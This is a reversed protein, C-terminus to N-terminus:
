RRTGGPQLRGGGLARQAEYPPSEPEQVPPPTVASYTLMFSSGSDALISPSSEGEGTTEYGAYERGGPALTIETTDWRWSSIASPVANKTEAEAEAFTESGFDALPLAQCLTGNGNCESPAEVIWDASTVDLTSDTVTKSFSKHRTRDTLDLTVKHGVVTVMGHMVDGPHVTMRIGRSPAPVLEYWATSVVSGSATCDAETGIQELAQSKLSYGGLGVWVASYTPDGATCTATPQTWLASLHRFNVGSRHAVYGSWNTSTSTSTEAEAGPAAFLALATAVLISRLMVSRSFLM